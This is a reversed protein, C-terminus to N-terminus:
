EVSQYKAKRSFLNSWDYPKGSDMASWDPDSEKVIPTKLFQSREAQQFDTDEIITPTIFILLNNKKREKSDSRFARGLLPV